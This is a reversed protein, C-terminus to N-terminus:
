TVTDSKTASYNLFPTVQKATEITPKTQVAALSNLEMMMTPDVARAYYIFICIIKKLRKQNNDDM